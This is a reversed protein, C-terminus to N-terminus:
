LIMDSDFNRESSTVAEETKPKYNKLFSSFDGGVQKDMNDFIAKALKNHFTSTLDPNNTFYPVPKKGKSGKSMARIPSIAVPVKDYPKGTKPNAKATTDTNPYSSSKIEYQVQGASDHKWYLWMDRLLIVVTDNEDKFGLDFVGAVKNKEFTEMKMVNSRLISPKLNFM